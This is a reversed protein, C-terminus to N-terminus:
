ESWLGTRKAWLEFDKLRTHYESIPKSFVSMNENKLLPIFPRISRLHQLYTSNRIELVHMVGDAGLQDSVLMLQDLFSETRQLRDYLYDYISAETGDPFMMNAHARPNTRGFIREVDADYFQWSDPLRIDQTLAAEFCIARIDGQLSRVLKSVYPAIHHVERLRRNVDLFLYFVFAAIISVSINYTTQVTQSGIALNLWTQVSFPLFAFVLAPFVLLWLRPDILRILKAPRM